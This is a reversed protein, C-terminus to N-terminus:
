GSFDLLVIDSAISSKTKESGFNKSKECIFDQIFKM